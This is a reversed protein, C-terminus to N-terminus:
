MAVDGAKCKAYASYLTLDPEGRDAKGGALYVLQRAAETEMAMDALMFQLGQFAGIPKGFQERESMYGICYDIAAQAIGVAQAGITLRTHDLAALAIKFGEGEAGILRDGPIVADDLHVQCTPSGRIGLKREKKGVSVGPDDARVYFASVGRAGASPDTKAMVVFADAASAGTTWMKTGNLRWGGQDRVATTAMAAADSGAGAESLCYSILEEGSALPPLWQQKQEESGALLIPMSGLKQVGPILSSAACARAVEEILIAFTIADGGGGGYEEPIHLGLLGNDALAKKVDWPFEETEDIEAARPAVVDDCLRRVVGRFTRQEDTLAFAASM